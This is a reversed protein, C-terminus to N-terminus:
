RVAAEISKVHTVHAIEFAGAAFAVDEDDCDVGIGADAIQFPRATGDQLFGCACIKNRGKTGDIVDNEKVFGVHFGQQLKKARIDVGFTGVVRDFGHGLASGGRAEADANRNNAIRFIMGCAIEEIGNALRRMGSGRKRTRRRPDRPSITCVKGATAASRSVNGPASITHSVWGRQLSRTSLLARAESTRVMSVRSSDEKRLAMSLTRCNLHSAEM